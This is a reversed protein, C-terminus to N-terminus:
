QLPYANGSRSAPIEPHSKSHGTTYLSAPLSFLWPLQVIQWHCVNPKSKGGTKRRAFLDRAAGTNNLRRSNRHSSGFSRRLAWRRVTGADNGSCLWGNPAFGVCARSHTRGVQQEYGIARGARCGDDRDRSTSSWSLNHDSMTDLYPLRDALQHRVVGTATRPKMRAIPHM